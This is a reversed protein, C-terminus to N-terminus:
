GRVRLVRHYRHHHHRYVVVGTPGYCVYVALWQLSVDYFTPRFEYRCVVAPEHTYPTWANAAGTALVMMSFGALAARSIGRMTM